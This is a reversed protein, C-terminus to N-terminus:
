LELEAEVPLHDSPYQGDPAEDVMRASRASIRDNVLIWDIRPGDATPPGYNNFTGLRPGRIAASAYADRFGGGTLVAYAESDEGCNFDGMIVVPRDAPLERARGLLQHASNLQAVSSEHDFHTSIVFLEAGDALSRFKALSYMRPLSHGWSISGPVGPTESLWQHDITILDVTRTDYIIASNEETGGDHRHEASLRYHAPLGTMLDALQHDLGEETGLIDPALGSLLEIAATRRRSWPQPDDESAFRLNYSVFRM